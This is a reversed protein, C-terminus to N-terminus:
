YIVKHMLLTDNEIISVISTGRHGDHKQDRQPIKEFAELIM